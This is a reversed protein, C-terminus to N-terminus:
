DPDRPVAQRPRDNDRDGSRSPARRDGDHRREEARTAGRNEGSAGSRTDGSSGEQPKGSNGDRRSAGRDRAGHGKVQQEDDTSTSAMAPSGLCIAAIPLIAVVRLTMGSGEPASAVRAPMVLTVGKTGRFKQFGLNGQNGHSVVSISDVKWAVVM